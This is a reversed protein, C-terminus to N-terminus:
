VGEGLGQKKKLSEEFLKKHEEESMKAIDDASIENSEKSPSNPEPIKKEKAVKERRFRIYDDELEAAEELSIDHEKAVTAIHNFEDESYDKHELLFEVKKQWEDPSEKKETDKPKEHEKLAAELEERREREEKYKAYMADAKAKYDPEKSSKGEDKESTDGEETTKESTEEEEEFEENTKEEM